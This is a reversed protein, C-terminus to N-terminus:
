YGTPPKESSLVHRTILKGDPTTIRVVGRVDLEETSHFTAWGTRVLVEEKADDPTLMLTVRLPRGAAVYVEFSSGAGAANGREDLFSANMPEGKDTFLALSARVAQESTITFTTSYKSSGGGLLIHGYLISPFYRVHDAAPNLLLLLAAILRM